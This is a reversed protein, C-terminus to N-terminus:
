DSPPSAEASSPPSAPEQVEGQATDEPNAREKSDAAEDSDDLADEGETELVDLTEEDEAAELTSGVAMVQARKGYRPAEGPGSWDIWYASEDRVDLHIFKSKPYFGVGVDKLTRCYDRLAELGVGPIRIDMAAGKTHRSTERTYGSAARFGSIIHVPKGGFHASVDALVALLRRDPRTVRVRKGMRRPKMLRGLQRRAAEDVRGRRDVLRLQVSRRGPPRVFTVPATRKSASRGRSPGFDTAVATLDTGPLALRSGLRVMAGPKLHNAEALAAVSIGNARALGALTDGPEVILTGRPPVDLSQGARLAAGKALRNAALLTRAPVDYRRAIGSVTEGRAVIHTRDAEAVPALGLCLGLAVIAPLTWAPLTRM